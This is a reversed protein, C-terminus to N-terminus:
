TTKMGQSIHIISCHVRPHLYRLFASKMEVSIYVMHLPLNALHYPLALKLKKLFRWVKEVSNTPIYFELKDQTLNNMIISEPSETGHNTEADFGTYNERIYNKKHARRHCQTM